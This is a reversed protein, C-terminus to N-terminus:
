HHHVTPRIEVPPRSARAAVGSALRMLAMLAAALAWCSGGFIFGAPRQMFVALLAGTVLLLGTDAVLLTRVVIRSAPRVPELRALWWTALDEEDTRLGDQEVDAM